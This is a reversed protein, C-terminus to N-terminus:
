RSQQRGLQVKANITTGLLGAIDPDVGYNQAVISHSLTLASGDVFVGGGYGTAVSDVNSALNRSITTYEVVVNSAHIGGGLFARNNSITSNSIIGDRLWVGGGDDATNGDITSEVISVYRGYIGGGRGFNFSRQISATNGTITSRIVQVHKPPDYVYGYVSLGGGDGASNDAITSDVVLLQAALGGNTRAVNIGGGFYLATNERITSHDIVAAGGLVM